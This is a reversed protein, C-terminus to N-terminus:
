RLPGPRLASLRGGDDYVYVVGDVVLPKARIGGDGVRTRAVLRGDDQSLWHLYGEFTAWWWITASWRRPRSADRM